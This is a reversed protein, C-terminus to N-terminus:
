VRMLQGSPAGPQPLASYSKLLNVLKSATLETVRSEFFDRTAPRAVEEHSANAAGPWFFLAARLSPGALRSSIDNPLALVTGIRILKRLAALQPHDM